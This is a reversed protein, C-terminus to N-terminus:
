TKMLVRFREGRFVLVMGEKTIRELRLGPAIEDGEGFRKLNVMVFRNAPAADYVHVDVRYMPVAQQLSSPKEVLLPIMELPTDDTAAPTTKIAPPKANVAEAPVEPVEPPLQAVPAEMALERAQAQLEQDTMLPLAPTQVPPIARHIPPEAAPPAAVVVPARATAAAPLREITDGDKNGRSSSYILLGALVANFIVAFAAVWLWPNRPARPTASLEHSELSPIQGRKREREAKNLADLIYSM